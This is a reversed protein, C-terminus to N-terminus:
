WQNIGQDWELGYYIIPDRGGDTMYAIATWTIKMSLPTIDAVAIVPPNMKTPTQDLKVATVTSYVGWGVGNKARLRFNYTMGNPLLTASTINFGLLLGATEAILSQWNQGQSGFDCQLDYFIAPDRGTQLDTTIPSWTLYIWYPNINADIAVPPYMFTPTTDSLMAFNDSCVGFGVGNKPCVRYYYQEDPKL